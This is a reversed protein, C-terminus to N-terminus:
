EMVQKSRHEADQFIARVDSVIKWNNLRGDSILGRGQLVDGSSTVVRVFADTFIQDTEKEYVLSDSRISAGDKSRGQVNGYTRLVKFHDDLLGSDAVLTAARTATSDFIEVDVPRVFIRESESWREMYTTRLRLVLLDGDHYDLVTEKEFLMSPRPAATKMEPAEELQTCGSVFLPVLLPFLSLIPLFLLTM